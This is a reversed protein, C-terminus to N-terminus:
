SSKSRKVCIQASVKGPVWHLKQLYAIDAESLGATATMFTQVWEAGSVEYEFDGTTQALYALLEKQAATAKQLMGDIKAAEEVARQTEAPSKGPIQLGAGPVGGPAGTKAGGGAESRRGQRGKRDDHHRQGGTVMLLQRVSVSSTRKATGASASALAEASTDEGRGATASLAADASTDIGAGAAAAGALNGSV